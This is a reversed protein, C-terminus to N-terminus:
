AAKILIAASDPIWTAQRDALRITRPFHGRALELDHLVAVVTRGQAHWDAIVSLLVGVTDSDVNTFPEDLLILAADQMITRAFLVRQFQGASLAQIQRGELGTLGVKALAARAAELRDRGVPRLLGLGRGALAVVELCSIPFSRDLHSGQALLATDAGRLSGRDITGAALPHLGALARLLTTKGAGNTGIVATLSGAQLTGSLDALVVRDGHKLTVRHFTIPTVAGVRCRGM